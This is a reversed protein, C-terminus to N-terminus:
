IKARAKQLTNARRRRKLLDLVSTYVAQPPVSESSTPTGGAPGEQHPKPKLLSPQDHNIIRITKNKKFLLYHMYSITYTKETDYFDLDVHFPSDLLNVRALARGELTTYGSPV